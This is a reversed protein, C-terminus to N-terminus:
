IKDADLQDDESRELYLELAYGKLYLSICSAIDKMDM